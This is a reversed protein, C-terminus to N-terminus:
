SNEQLVVETVLKGGKVYSKLQEPLPCEVSDEDETAPPLDINIGSCKSTYVETHLSEKSLIVASNDVKDLQVVPLSGTVQVRFNQCNVAEVSSVLTDVVIDVRKCGDVQIANAKGNIIFQAKNCRSILLSHQREVDIVIPQTENEFNEITWKNGDLVKKPPKKTRMSEPKKNPAPSKGRNSGASDKRVPVVPAQRLSPNKHTMQSKDVKKLGSTVGEGRNIEAFVSGMDGAKGKPAPTTSGELQEITPLPPPPPPPPPPPGGAAPAPPAPPAGAPGGAARLEKLGQDPSVGNANWVLGQRYHQAIFAKLSGCLKVFSTM